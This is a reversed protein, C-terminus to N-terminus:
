PNSEREDYSESQGSENLLSSLWWGVMIGLVVNGFAFMIIDIGSM